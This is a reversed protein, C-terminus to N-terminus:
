LMFDVTEGSFGFICIGLWNPWKNAEFHEGSFDDILAMRLPWGGFVDMLARWLPWAYKGDMLAMYLLWGYHGDVLAM